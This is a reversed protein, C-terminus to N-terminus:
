LGKQRFKLYIKFIQPFTNQIRFKLLGLKSSKRIGYTINREIISQLDNLQLRENEKSNFVHFDSQRKIIQLIEWWFYQIGQSAFGSKYKHNVENYIKEDVTFGYDNPNANAVILGLITRHCKECKSCNVTNNLLSYCVRLNVFNNIKKTYDAILGIKDQRQMEYGDHHVKTNAWKISNDIEPTSGWAIDINDTYSSAIYITEYSRLVSIPAVIGNLALGHQVKGWWGLDPLLLDVKHTYFSRLNSKIHVKENKTLLSEDENLQVIRNWQKMDALEVDAGHVTILDPIEDFHRFYTAYADVGGSFLMAAATAKCENKVINHCIVSSKEFDILPYSKAFERKINELANYFVEDIENIEISIGAFWAIPAINALFPIVLISPAVSSVDIDYEVFLMESKNLYKSVSLDFDYIYNIRCGDNEFKIENLKIM